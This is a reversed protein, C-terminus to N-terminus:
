FRPARNENQILDIGIGITYLLGNFEGREEEGSKAMRVTTANVANNATAFAYVYLTSLAANSSVWLERSIESPGM